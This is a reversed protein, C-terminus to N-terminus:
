MKALLFGILHRLSRVLSPHKAAEHLEALDTQNLWAGGQMVGVPHEVVSVDALPNGNVLIMDATYGVRIQGIEDGLELARAPHATASKLAEFPTLGARVFLELERTVSSGPVTVMAGSDTGVTLVVGEEHFIKVCRRYFEALRIESDREYSAWFDFSAQDFLLVLPNFMEMEARQMHAGRTRTLEALNHHVILTPNVVVGAAALKRALIRARDENMDQDLAHWIISEMHEIDVLGDDLLLDFSAKAMPDGAPPKGEVPHGFVPMNLKAAEDLIAAYSDLSLNSYVKILAYGQEYQRRVVARAEDPGDVMVQLINANRGGKENIIAGSTLLRPGLITNANLRDQLELHFPMGGANRVTTVGHSVFAALETEDYLHVHMDILGPMLTKGQGDIVQAGDPTVIIDNPGLATIVGDHVVVAWNEHVTNQEMTLVSAGRIVYSTTASRDPKLAAPMARDVLALVALLLIFLVVILVLTAILVRRALVM